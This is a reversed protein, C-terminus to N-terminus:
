YNYSASLAWVLTQLTPQAVIVGSREPRVAQHFTRCLGGRHAKMECWWFARWSWYEVEKEIVTRCLNYFEMKESAAEWHCTSNLESLLFCIRLHLSSVLSTRDGRGQLRSMSSQSKDRLSATQWPRLAPNAPGKLIDKRSKSELWLEFSCSDESCCRVWVGAKFSM